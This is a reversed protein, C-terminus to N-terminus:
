LGRFFDWIANAASGPPPSGFECFRVPFGADCGAYAVCPAPSVAAPANADCGNREVWFDRNDRGFTTSSAETSDQMLLVAAEGVCAGPAPALVASLPAFARLTDSRVCAFANVLLAGQGLGVAFVRGQDICYTSELESLLADILPLDRQVDWTSANEPCNPHVLVADAGAVLPLGLSERLAEPTTDTRRFAIVLPYPRTKDYAAPLDLLYDASMGNVEIHGDPLLPDSGCGTSPRPATGASGAADERTGADLGAADFADGRAGLVIDSGTCAAAQVGLVMGALGVKLARGIEIMRSAAM